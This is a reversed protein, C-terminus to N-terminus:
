KGRVKEWFGFFGGTAFNMVSVDGARRVLNLRVGRRALAQEIAPVEDALPGTFPRLAILTDLGEEAARAALSAALDHGDHLECPVGFFTSARGAGDALAHRLFTRKDPSYSERDWIGTPCPALLANPKIGALPSREVSLDEEHIWIGTRSGPNPTSHELKCPAPQDEWPLSRVEVTELRNLGESHEVLLDPDVYRELNSRRVLYAKGRTHLGAVWRWSLTNSAADGDRLHRLFFHAGLQWPLQEVHIWYSAWWMRAHNHLYGTAVLERTFYDLIAVGSEGAAVELARDSWQLPNLTERYGRWVAPRQELWGKWYLRWWVEQEFKEISAPDHRERAAKIIESELLVRTRTSPSLRSVNGHDPLVHNRRAAYAPAFPLFEELRGLAEPRTTPLFASVVGTVDSCQSASPMKGLLLSGGGLVTGM